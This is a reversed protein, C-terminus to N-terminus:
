PRPGKEILARLGAEATEATSLDLHERLRALASLVPSVARIHAPPNSRGTLEQFAALVVGLDHLPSYPEPVPEAAGDVLTVWAAIDGINRAYGPRSVRRVSQRYVTIVDEDVQDARMAQEARQFIRLADAEVGGEPLIGVEADPYRPAETVGAKQLLAVVRGINLPHGLLILAHMAIRPASSLCDPIQEGWLEYFPETQDLFQDYSSTYELIDAVLAGCMRPWRRYAEDMIARQQAESLVGTVAMIAAHENESDTASDRM